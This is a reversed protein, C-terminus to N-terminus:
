EVVARPDHHTLDSRRTWTPSPTRVAAVATLPDAATKVVLSLRFMSRTKAYPIYFEAVPEDDLKTYRLDAIVGVITAITAMTPLPNPDIGDVPHSISGRRPSEDDLPIERGFKLRALTENVV